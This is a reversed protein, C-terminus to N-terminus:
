PKYITIISSIPFEIYTLIKYTSFYRFYLDKVKFGHDLNIKPKAKIMFVGGKKLHQDVFKSTIEKEKDNMFHMSDQSIVIDWQADNIQKTTNHEAFNGAIFKINRNKIHECYIKFNNENEVLEPKNLALYKHLFTYKDPMKCFNKKQFEIHREDKDPDTNLVLGKAAM